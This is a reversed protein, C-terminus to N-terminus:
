GHAFGVILAGFATVTVLWVWAGGMAMFSVRRDLGLRRIGGYGHVLVIILLTANLARNASLDPVLMHVATLPGLLVGSLRQVVWLWVPTIVFARGYVLRREAQM